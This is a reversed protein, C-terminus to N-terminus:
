DRYGRMDLRLRLDKMGRALLNRAKNYPWDFIEMIEKVEYGALHATVARRRDGSIEALATRIAHGLEKGEVLVDPGPGKASKEAGAELPSETRLGKLARVTERIAARYLYSSPHTPTQEGPMAKWLSLLVEQEVDEAISDTSPGAVRAIASRILRSYKRAILEIDENHMM